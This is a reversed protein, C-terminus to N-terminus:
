NKKKNEEEVLLKIEKYCDEFGKDYKKKCNSILLLSMGVTLLLSGFFSAYDMSFKFPKFTIKLDSAFALLAVLVILWITTKIM